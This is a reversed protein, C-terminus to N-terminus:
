KKPKLPLVNSPKAKRRQAVKKGGAVAEQANGQGSVIEKLASLAASLDEDGEYQLAIRSAEDPNVAEAAAFLEAIALAEGTPQVAEDTLDNVTVDGKLDVGHAEAWNEEEHKIENLMWDVTRQYKPSLPKGALYRDTAVKIEGQTSLGNTGLDQRMRQFWEANPLWATRGVVPSKYDQSERIVRGGVEAWGSEGAMRRLGEAQPARESSALAMRRDLEAQAAQRAEPAKAKLAAVKLAKDPLEAVPRGLITIPALIPAAPAVAPQQQPAAAAESQLPAPAAQARRAIEADILARAAGNRTLNRAAELHESTAAAAEEPTTPIKASVEPLGKRRRAEQFALQMATPAAQLEDPSTAQAVALQEDARAERGQRAIEEEQVRREMAELVQRGELAFQAASKVTGEVDVTDVAEKTKLIAEDVTEAQAIEAIKDNAQSVQESLPPVAPAQAIPPQQSSGTQLAHQAFAGGGGAVGEALAGMVFQQLTDATIPRNGGVALNSGLNQGMQEVAEETGGTVAGGTVGIATKGLLTKGPIKLRGRTLAGILFNEFAGEAASPIANGLGGGLAAAEAVANKAVDPQVGKGILSRYLQSSAMLEDHGMAEFKAREEGAGGGLAQLGGVTAGITLQAPISAGATAIAIALNPAFQGIANLGQLALGSLSPDSGASWTSPDFLSGSIQTGAEAAKAGRTKSEELWDIASQFPNIARLETGAIANVGRALLEGGGQAIMGAGSLGGSLVSKAYDGFTPPPPALHDVIEADSYGAKKAGALDFDKQPALFSAIEADSYGAQRAGELDFAM